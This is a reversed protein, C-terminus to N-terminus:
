VSPKEMSTRLRACPAGDTPHEGGSTSAKPKATEQSEQGAPTGLTKKQKSNLTRQRKMSGDNPHVGGRTRKTAAETPHEGGSPSLRGDRELVQARTLLSRIISTPTVQIM